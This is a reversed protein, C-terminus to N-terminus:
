LSYCKRNTSNLPYFFPFSIYGDSTSVTWEYIITAPASFGAPVSFRYEYDDSAMASSISSCTLDAKKYKKENGSSSIKCSFNNLTRSNNCSYYFGADKFGKSNSVYITQTYKATFSKENKCDIEVSYNMVSSFIPEGSDKEQAVASNLFCLIILILSFRM